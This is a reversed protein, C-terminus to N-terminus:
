SLRGMLLVISISSAIWFVAKVVGVISNENYKPTQFQKEDGNETTDEPLLLYTLEKSIKNLPESILQSTYAVLDYKLLSHQSDVLM